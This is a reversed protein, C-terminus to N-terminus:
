LLINFLNELDHRLKEGKSTLSDVSDAVVNLKMYRLWPGFHKGSAHFELSEVPVSKLKSAFEQVSVARAVEKGNSLRFIFEKGPQAKQYVAPNVQKTPTNENSSSGSIKQSLM